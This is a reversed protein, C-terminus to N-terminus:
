AAAEARSPARVFLEAIACLMALAFLSSSLRSPPVIDSRLASSPAAARGDALWAPPAGTDAAATAAGVCPAVMAQVIRQFAPRLPLDGNVPLVVGVTRVCGLGLPQERAAAAGDSWRAISVAATPLARRGLLALLVDDSHALGEARLPAVSTDWMVVAGGASAFTSDGPTLPAGRRLRVTAAGPRVPLRVLAPGLPDSLPVAREISATSGSERRAAVREVRVAGPWTSRISQTAADIGAHELASVIVLEVSDARTALAGAARRASALAVSLSGHAVLSRPPGDITDQATLERPATTTSDFEILLAPAGDRALMRVRQWADARSAVSTSRDLLVVRALPARQGTRLPGAFAAGAFLLVLMRLALLLLDRPRSVARSVLLRRDPIFRATPLLFTAPRRWAVLHLLLVGLAGAAGLALAWPALFNM